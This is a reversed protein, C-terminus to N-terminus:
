EGKPIPFCLSPILQEWTYLDYNRWGHRFSCLLHPLPLRVTYFKSVESPLLLYVAKGNKLPPDSGNFRVEFCKEEELWILHRKEMLAFIQHRPPAVSVLTFLILHDMYQRACSRQEKEPLRATKTLFNICHDKLVEYDKAQLLPFTPPLIRAANQRQKVGKQTEQLTKQVFDWSTSATPPTGAVKACFKIAQAIVLFLNYIRIPGNNRAQCVWLFKQLTEANELVLLSARKRYIKYHSLTNFIFKTDKSFDRCLLNFIHSLTVCRPHVFLQFEQLEKEFHDDYAIPSPSVPHLCTELIKRFDVM